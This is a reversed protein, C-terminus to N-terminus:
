TAAAAVGLAGFVAVGAVGLGRWWMGVVGVVLAYAALLAYIGVLLATKDNQGFTRIAFDKLWEPTLLIFRNGVAYVPASEPRVLAAALNAVGIAVGATVLGVLPGVAFRSVGALKGSRAPRPRASETSPM